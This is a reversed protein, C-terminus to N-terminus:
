ININFIEIQYHHRYEHIEVCAGNLSFHGLHNNDAIFKNQEESLQEKYVFYMHVPELDLTDVDKKPLQLGKNEDLFEKFEPHLVYGDMTELRAPNGTLMDGEWGFSAFSYITKSPFIKKACEIGVSNIYPGYDGSRSYLVVIDDVVRLWGGNLTKWRKGGAKDFVKDAIM